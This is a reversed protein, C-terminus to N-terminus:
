KFLGEEVFSLEGGCFTMAVRIQGLAEPGRQAECFPDGTLVVMDAAKGPELTGRFHEQFVARAGGFTFGEIASGIPIAKHPHSPFVAARIGLLPDMPTIPSDSGFALTIGSLLMTPFQNMGRAREVGLRAAYMGQDGGWFAEFAPQASVVVGLTAAKRIQDGDGLEFHEIRHRADARPHELQVRELADLIQGIARDGIAHVAIQLGALHAKEVFEFLEEDDFYLLGWSGPADSYPERLAATRSGISGDLMICGGIRKFGMEVVKNVDTTQFWTVLNLKLEGKMGELIEVDKDSHGPGGELACVTTIGAKAAVQAALRIARRKNEEDVMQDLFKRLRNNAESLVVGTPVGKSDLCVGNDGAKLGCLELMRSNVVCSHGDVRGIAVPGPCAQDLESITPARREALRTEDFNCARLPRDQESRVNRLADLVEGVCTCPSLDLQSMHLGTSVFHTHSDIFGPLVTMGRLDIDEHPGAQSVVDELDGVAVITGGRVLIAEAVKGSAGVRGAYVRGNRLLLGKLEELMEKGSQRKVALWLVHAQQTEVAFTGANRGLERM